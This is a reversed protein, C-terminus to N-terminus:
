LKMIDAEKKSFISELGSTATSMHADLEKKGRSVDDESLIGEKKQESMDDNTLARLQRLEVKADELVQKAEKVLIVRREGTLDPFIVRIGKDDVATSVGLDASILGKEISRILSSDWPNVRITKADELGLSAVNSLPSFEGYAEVKVQDLYSLSTKERRINQYKNQLSIEIDKVKKLFTSFNYIM